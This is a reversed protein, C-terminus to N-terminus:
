APRKPYDYDVLDAWNGADIWHDIPLEISIVACTPVDGFREGTLKEALESIGPNHAILAATSAHAPITRIAELMSHPSALYLERRFDIQDMSFNLSTAFLRATQDARQASSSLIYELTQEANALRKQLRDGMMPADSLGRANLCRDFDNLGAEGWSSKAHRILILTKM